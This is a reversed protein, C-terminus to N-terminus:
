PLNDKLIKIKGKKDKQRLKDVQKLRTRRFSTLFLGKGSSTTKLAYHYLKNNDKNLVIAVTKDGDKVVFHSKGVIDDLMLYDAESLDPHHNLNKILTDNSLTVQRTKSLLIESLMVSIKGIEFGFDNKNYKKSFKRMYGNYGLVDKYRGIPYKPRLRNV